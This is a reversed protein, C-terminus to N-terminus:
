KNEKNKEHDTAWDFIVQNVNYVILFSFINCYM